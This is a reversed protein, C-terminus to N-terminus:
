PMLWVVTAGGASERGDARVATAKLTMQSAQKLDNVEYVFDTGAIKSAILEYDPANGVARYINYSAADASGTWSLKIQNGAGNKEIKLDTPAAVPVYAPIETVVYTQGKTTEISIQDTGTAVFDVSKGDATKIVASAVGPYRLDLTGGAKSLVELRNAQGGSWQASVEFNGRALLGRYSGESWAGPLAALPAVVHDQSQMLMEAVGATAGYNADAQFLPGGRHDNFLNHLLNGGVFDKFYAYAEEADYVRALLAIREARAWGINSKRTRLNLTLKAADLWAPTKSNILQGPYLGLLM